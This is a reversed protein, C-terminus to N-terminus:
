PEICLSLRLAALVQELTGAAVLVKKDRSKTGKYVSVQSKPVNLVQAILLELAKNAKGETPPAALRAQLGGDYLILESQRANPKVRVPIM